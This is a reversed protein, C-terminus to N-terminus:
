QFKGQQIVDMVEQLNQPNVGAHLSFRLRSENRPVTPPRVAAVAIGSEKLKSQLNLVEETKNIILPVIPSDGLITKLGAGKIKDRFDISLKKLKSVEDRSNKIQELAALAAGAASPPLFTSYILEGSFNTLYDTIEQCDTVMFAGMSALSKGLTGVLIDVQELVGAEKALGEGQSGYLGLAHAEDLIWVFGYKSKLEALRCLDPSDGDMSFLSETIVFLTEAKQQYKKLLSELHDLDNHHYRHFSHGKRGLAQAISHHILRDTLILDKPGILHYVLAQNAMFGTNFLLGSKKGMWNQLSELLQHHLPCFGTLLPSAGSGTGYTETAVQSARIVDPHRRLNLYDNSSLNLRVDRSIEIKRLLGEQERLSLARQLKKRLNSKM